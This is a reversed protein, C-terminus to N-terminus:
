APSTGRPFNGSVVIEEPVVFTGRLRIDECSRGAQVDFDGPEVVWRRKRDFLALQEPYIRFRVRESGGVELDVKTFGCLQQVPTTLTSLRDTVYLQVVERGTRSGVNTVTLAVETVVRPDDPCDSIALDSYGFETYTLGHGFPFLPGPELDVYGYEHDEVSHKARKHNYHLPLQGVHRPFTVPLRGSPDHDGFLVDAIAEGGREGPVWGEVIVPVHEAIWRVSLARGNILVVVTPTGTAHVAEVLEQQRGTLDLSAVDSMEGMTNQGTGDTPWVAICEGIVVIAVDASAAADVAAPIGDADDGLVACGTQHAVETRAGLKEVIADLISKVPQTIETAVYDGVISRSDDALPGIVAVRQLDKPLPLLGGDNKLLVIGDRAARLALERHEPPPGDRLSSSAGLSQDFLGLREKLSLVRRVARDLLAEDVSGDRVNQGLSGRYAEEYTVNVDVGARIALAGAEKPTEVIGDIQLTSFGMGESVTVGQFGLEDRLLETMLWESAHAPDGNVSNWTTMVCLAGAGVAASWGPLYTERLSRESHQIAGRELGGAPESSAPFDVVILGVKDRASPDEGQAGAVIAEIVRGAMYPDESYLESARGPRPDRIPEAYLTALVHVGSARAEYAVASYVDKILSLDWTSGLAPGEPFITAGSTWVGHTGESVQILPIGLRTERAIGQLRAHANAQEQLSAGTMTFNALLWLGGIPGVGEEYTGLTLGEADAMSTPLKAVGVAEPENMVVGAWMVLPINLQGVKEELTMERILAEVRESGASDTMELRDGGPEFRSLVTLMWYSRTAPTLGRRAPENALASSRPRTLLAM